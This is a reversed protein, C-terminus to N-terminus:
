EPEQGVEDSGQETPTGDRNSDPPFLLGVIDDALSRAGREVEERFALGDAAAWEVFKHTDPSRYEFSAAYLETEDTTRILRVPATMLLTMPPNVSGQGALRIGSVRVELVADIGGPAPAGDTAPDDIAGPERDEMAVFSPARRDRAARLVHDRLTTQVTLDAMASELDIEAARVRSASEATVAGHVTGVLAGLTGGAAAVGLGALLITGCVLAGVERAGGCGRVSSAIALGPVVGVALGYGAGKVAGWGKGSTTSKLQSDPPYQVTSVGVTHLQARVEDPLSQPSRHGKIACGWPGCMAALVIAIVAFRGTAFTM